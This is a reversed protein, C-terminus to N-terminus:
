EDDFPVFVRDQIRSSYKHLALIRFKNFGVDGQFRFCFLGSAHPRYGGLYEIKAAAPQHHIAPHFSYISSQASNLPDSIHLRTKNKERFVSLM